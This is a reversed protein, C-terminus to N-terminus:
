EGAGTDCMDPWDMLKEPNKNRSNHIKIAIVINIEHKISLIAVTYTVSARM